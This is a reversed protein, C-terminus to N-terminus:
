ALKSSAAGSLPPFGVNGPHRSVHSTWFPRIGSIEHPPASTSSITAPFYSPAISAAAVRSM